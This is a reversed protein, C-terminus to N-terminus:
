VENGLISACVGGLALEEVAKGVEALAVVVDLVKLAVVEGNSDVVHSVEGISLEVLVASAESRHWRRLIVLTVLDVEGDFLMNIPNGLALGLGGLVL